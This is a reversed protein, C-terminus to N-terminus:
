FSWITWINLHQSESLFKMARFLTLFTFYFPIDGNRVARIELSSSQKGMLSFIASHELTAQFSPSLNGERGFGLQTLLWAKKRQGPHFLAADCYVKPVMYGAPMRPLERWLGVTTM